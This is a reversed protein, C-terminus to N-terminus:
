QSSDSLRLRGQKIVTWALPPYHLLSCIYDQPSSRRSLHYSYHLIILFIFSFETIIILKNARMCYIAPLFLKCLCLDSASSDALSLLNLFRWPRRRGIEPLSTYRTGIGRIYQHRGSTVCLIQIRKYEVEWFTPVGSLLSIM